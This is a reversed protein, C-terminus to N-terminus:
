RYAQGESIVCQLPFPPSLSTPSFNLGQALIRGVHPSLLSLFPVLPSSSLFYFLPSLCLFHPYFLPSSSSSLANSLSGPMQERETISTFIAPPMCVCLHMNSSSQRCALEWKGSPSQHVAHTHTQTNTNVSVHFPTNAQWLNEAHSCWLPLCTLM